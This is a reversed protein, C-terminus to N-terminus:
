LGPFYLVRQVRHRGESCCYYTLACHDSRFLRRTTFTAELEEEGQKSMPM